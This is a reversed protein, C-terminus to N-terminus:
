KYPGLVVNTDGWHAWPLVDEVDETRLNKIQTLLFNSSQFFGKLLSFLISSVEPSLSGERLVSLCVSSTAHVSCCYWPKCNIINDLAFSTIDYTLLTSGPPLRFLGPLGCSIILLTNKRSHQSIFWFRLLWLKQEWSTTAAQELFFCFYSIQKFQILTSKVSPHMRSWVSPTLPVPLLNTASAGSNAHQM